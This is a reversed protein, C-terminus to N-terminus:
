QSIAITGFYPFQGSIFNNEGSDNEQFGAFVGSQDEPFNCVLRFISATPLPNGELDVGDLTISLTLTGTTFFDLEYSNINGTLGGIFNFSGSSAESNVPDQTFTCELETNNGLNNFSITYGNLSEPLEEYNVHTVQFFGTPTTAVSTINLLTFEPEALRFTAEGIATWNSLDESASFSYESFPTVNLGIFHSGDEIEYDLNTPSLEPLDQETEDFALAEDGIRLISVRNITVEAGEGLADIATVTEIGEVVRGFVAHMRDLFPADSQTIFFQSGGSNIGSNAMSLIGPGTHTLDPHFEDQIEYGPGGSTTGTPSGAQIVFGPAIRPIPLGDFLPQNVMLRGSSPEIWNQTGSALGVFNAVTLPAKQFELLCFFDGETTEFHAYLGDETPQAFLSYAFLFFIFQARFVIM